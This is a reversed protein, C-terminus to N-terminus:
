VDRLCDPHIIDAPDCRLVLALRALTRANPIFNPRDPRAGRMVYTITRQSVDARRALEERSLGRLVMLKGLPSSTDYERM